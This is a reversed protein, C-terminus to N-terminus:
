EQPKEELAYCCNRLYTALQQDTYKALEEAPIPKGIRVHVTRGKEQKGCKKVDEDSIPRVACHSALQSRLKPTGRCIVVKTTHKDTPLM